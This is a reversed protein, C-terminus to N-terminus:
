FLLTTSLIVVFFVFISNSIIAGPLNANSNLPIKERKFNFIGKRADLVRIKYDFLILLINLGVAIVALITGVIAGLRIAFVLENLTVGVDNLEIVYRNLDNTVPEIKYTDFYSKLGTRLFGFASDFVMDYSDDIWETINIIFDFAQYGLYIMSFITIVICTLVVQPYIFCDVVYKKKYMLEFPTFIRILKKFFGLEEWKQLDVPTDRLEQKSLKKSSKGQNSKSSSDSVISDESLTRNHLEYSSTMDHDVAKKSEEDITNQHEYETVRGDKHNHLAMPATNYPGNSKQHLKQKKSLWYNSPHGNLRQYVYEMLYIKKRKHFYTPEKKKIWADTIYIVLSWITLLIIFGCLIYVSAEYFTSVNNKLTILYIYVATVIISVFLWYGKIFKSGFLLTLFYFGILIGNEAWDFGRQILSIDDEVTVKNKDVQLNTFIGNAGFILAYEGPKDLIITVNSIIVKTGNIIPRNFEVSYRQSYQNHIADVTQLGRMLTKALRKIEEIASESTTFNNYAMRVDNEEINSERILEVDAYSVVSIVFDEKRIIDVDANDNKWLDLEFTTNLDVRTQLYGDVDKNFKVKINENYEKSQTMKRFPHIIKIKPSPTTMVDNTQCVLRVSSDIPSELVRLFLEAIGEKNTMASARNPDIRSGPALLSSKQINYNSNAM